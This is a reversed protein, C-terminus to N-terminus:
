AAAKQINSGTGSHSTIFRRRLLTISKLRHNVEQAIQQPTMQEPSPLVEQNSAQEPPLNLSFESPQM